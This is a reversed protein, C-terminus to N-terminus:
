AVYLLPSKNDKDLISIVTGSELIARVMVVPCCLAAYHLPSREHSDVVNVNAGERLLLKVGIKVEIKKEKQKLQQFQDWIILLVCDPM